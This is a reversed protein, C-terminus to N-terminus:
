PICARAATKLVRTLCLVTFTTKRESALIDLESKVKITLMILRNTTHVKARLNLRRSYFHYFCDIVQKQIQFQNLNSNLTSSLDKSMSSMPKSNSNMGGALNPQLQPQKAMKSATESQRLLQQKDALTLHQKSQAPNSAM